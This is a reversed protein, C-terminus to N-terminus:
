VQIVASSYCFDCSRIESRQRLAWVFSSSSTELEQSCRFVTERIPLSCVVKQMGQTQHYPSTSLPIAFDWFKPAVVYRCMRRDAVRTTYFLSNSCAQKYAETQSGWNRCLREVKLIFWLVIHDVNRSPHGYLTYNLIFYFSIFDLFFFVFLCLLAFWPLALLIFINCQM